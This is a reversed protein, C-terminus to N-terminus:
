FLLPYSEYCLVELNKSHKSHFKEPAKGRKFVKRVVQLKPQMLYEFLQMAAAPHSVQFLNGSSM